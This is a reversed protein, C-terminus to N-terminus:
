SAGRVQISPLVAALGAPESQALYFDHMHLGGDDMTTSLPHNRQTEEKKKARKKDKWVKGIGIGSREAVRVHAIYRLWWETKPKIKAYCSVKKFTTTSPPTSAKMTVLM